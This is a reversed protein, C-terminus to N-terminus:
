HGVPLHPQARGSRWAGPVRHSGTYCQPHHRWLISPTSPPCPLHSTRRDESSNCGCKRSPGLRLTSEARGEGLGGGLYPVLGGLM